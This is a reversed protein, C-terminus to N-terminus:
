VRREFNLDSGRFKASHEFGPAGFVVRYVDEGRSDKGVYNAEGRKGHHDGAMGHRKVQVRIKRM